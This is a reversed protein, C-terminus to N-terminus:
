LIMTKGYSTSSVAPNINKTYRKCRVCHSEM